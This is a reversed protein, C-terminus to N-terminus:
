EKSENRKERKVSDWFEKPDFINSDNSIQDTGLEVLAVIVFAILSAVAVITIIEWTTFNELM